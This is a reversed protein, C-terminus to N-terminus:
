SAIPYKVDQDPGLNSFSIGYLPLTDLACPAFFGVLIFVAGVTKLTVSATHTLLSM